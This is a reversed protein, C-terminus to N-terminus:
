FLTVFGLCGEGAEETEKEVKMGVMKEIRKKRENLFLIERPWKQLKGRKFGEGKCIKIQDLPMHNQM